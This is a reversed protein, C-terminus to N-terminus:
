RPLKARMGEAAFQASHRVERDDDAQAAPQLAPLAASDDILGLARAAAERVSASRDDRLMQTLPQVARKAKMRGLQVAASARLADDAGSLAQWQQEVSDQRLETPQITPPLPTPPSLPTPTPAAEVPSSYAPQYVPATTYYPAPQVIVAPPSLYLPYPRYYYHYPYGYYHPHYYVPAGLNVGVSWGIGAQASTWPLAALIFAAAIMKLARM